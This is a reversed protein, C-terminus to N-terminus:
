DDGDSSIWAEILRTSHGPDRKIHDAIEDLRTPGREASAGSSSGLESVHGGTLESRPMAGRLGRQEDSGGAHTRGDSLALPEKMTAVLQGAVPRLVLMVLMVGLLATVGTKLIAPQTGLLGKTQEMVKELGATEAEPANSSFGVNEMVVQDGRKEDFGVAAQALGELRKMEDGTRPKWVTKLTKAAGETSMRDNVVVAATIRRLRGPGAETHTLHRTVAYTGSEEKTSQGSGGNQPYVPLAEKGAPPQLLPPTGPAAAKVSGQM